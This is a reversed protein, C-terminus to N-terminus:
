KIIKAASILFIIVGVIVVIPNFIVAGVAMTASGLLIGIAAYIKQLFTM